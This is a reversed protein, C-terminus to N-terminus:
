SLTSRLNLSANYNQAGLTLFAINEFKRSIEHVHIFQIWNFCHALNKPQRLNTGNFHYITKAGWFRKGFSLHIQFHLYKFKLYYSWILGLIESFTVIVTLITFM